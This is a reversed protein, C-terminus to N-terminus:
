ALYPFMFGNRFSEGKVFSLMGHYHYDNDRVAEPPTLLSDRYVTHTPQSNAVVELTDTHAVLLYLSPLTIHLRQAWPVPLSGYRHNAPQNRLFEFPGPEESKDKVM